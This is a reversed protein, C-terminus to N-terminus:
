DCLLIEENNSHEQPAVDPDGVIDATINALRKVNLQPDLLNCTTFYKLVNNFCLLALPDGRESESIFHFIKRLKVQTLLKVTVTELTSM